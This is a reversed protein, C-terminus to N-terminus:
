ETPREKLTYPRADVAFRFRYGDLDEIEFERLGWSQVRPEMTVTVNRDRYARFLANMDESGDTHGLHIYMYGTPRVEIGDEEREL